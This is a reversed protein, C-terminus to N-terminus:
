PHLAAWRRGVEAKWNRAYDTWARATEPLIPVALARAQGLPGALLAAGIGTGASQGAATVPRGTATALMRAFAQNGGFPGEVMVPGEAGILSLCEAGMLAAYFSAAATRQGDTAPPSPAWAFTLGPFPGTDPHRSPLAMVGANLVAALDAETPTVIRGETIEDFERGAMYRATPTPEGKANVNVLVDRAAELALKRGGLAMAIMWTGTSIVARPGADGLWPVLSANSDHIGSLVPTDAPLGTARAVQPLITGLVASAPRVPPFLRRWGQTEVLSSFDGSWPNWLDTHCGLSTPESAAVGTLRFSLYQPYTLIHTVRAFDQPFTRAQWYIQAGLNLGVPLRPAGTEAFPPRARDYADALSDPGHDEYDLIPLALTGDAAVLAASAGHTTISIADIGGDRGLDALGALLFNWLGEADYHRYPPAAVVANATKRLTTETGTSLDICLVKANTKGIDIVAIRRM